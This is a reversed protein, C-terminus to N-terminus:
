LRGEKEAVARIAQQMVELYKSTPTKTVEQGPVYEKWVARQINRPVMRWHRLCMLMSPSIEVDCGLAHCPHERKPGQRGCHKCKAGPPPTKGKCFLCGEDSM